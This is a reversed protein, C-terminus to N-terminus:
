WVTNGSRVARYHNPMASGVGVMSRSTEEVCSQGWPNSLPHTLTCFIGEDESTPVDGFVPDLCPLASCAVGGNVLFISFLEKVTPVRWGNSGAFGGGSNLAALFETFVTGNEAADSGEQQLTYRNDADHPNAANVVGDRSEKKEWILGTLHDTVTGDGNDV